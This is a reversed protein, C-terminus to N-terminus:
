GVAPDGSPVSGRHEIVLSRKGALRGIWYRIFGVAQPFKALVIWVAYLKADPLSWGRQVAYYRRTRRYLFLYGALLGLSL